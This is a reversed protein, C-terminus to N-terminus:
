CRPHSTVRVQSCTSGCVGNTVAIIKSFPSPPYRSRFFQSYTHLPFLRSYLGKVGGRVRTVATSLDYIPAYPKDGRIDVGQLNAYPLFFLTSNVLGGVVAKFLGPTITTLETFNQVQQALSPFVSNWVKACDEAAVTWTYPDLPDPEINCQKANANQSILINVASYARTLAAILNSLKSPDSNIAAVRQDVWTDNSTLNFLSKINATNIGLSMFARAVPGYRVDYNNMFPYTSNSFTGNADIWNFIAWALGYGNAVTGGGNNTLDIILKDTKNGTAWSLLTPWKTLFLTSDFKFSNLKLVAYKTGDTRTWINFFVDCLDTTVGNMIYLICNDPVVPASVTSAQQM